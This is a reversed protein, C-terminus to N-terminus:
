MRRRELNGGDQLTRAGQPSSAGAAVSRFLGRVDLDISRIRAEALPRRSQRPPQIRRCDFGGGSTRSHDAGCRGAPAATGLDRLTRGANNGGADADPLRWKRKADQPLEDEDRSGKPGFAFATM